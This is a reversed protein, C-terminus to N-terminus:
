KFNIFFLPAGLSSLKESSRGLGSGWRPSQGDTFGALCKRGQSWSLICVPHYLVYGAWGMLQPRTMMNDNASKAM